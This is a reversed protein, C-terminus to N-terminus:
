GGWSRRAFEIMLQLAWPGALILVVGVGVLRPVTVLAQDHMQTATQVVGVILGVLLCVGLVPAAVMLGLMLAERLLDISQDATM